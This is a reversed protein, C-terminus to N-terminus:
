HTLSYAYFAWAFVLIGSGVFLGWYRSLREAGDGGYRMRFGVFALLWLALWIHVPGEAWVPNDLIWSEIPQLM